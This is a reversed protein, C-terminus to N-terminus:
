NVDSPEYGEVHAECASTDHKSPQSGPAATAQYM